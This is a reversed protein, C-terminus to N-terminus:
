NLEYLTSVIVSDRRSNEQNIELINKKSIYKLNFPHQDLIIGSDIGLRIKPGSPKDLNPIFSKKLPLQETILLFKYPSKKNIKEVFSKIESNSLHQLVQRVTALDGEPLVDKSLNLHLFNLNDLKFKKKNRELIVKSIDCAVYHDCYAVLKKGINFDGCGLDVVKSIKLKKFLESAANIYPKVIEIEHSGPGSTSEGKDNKGWIGEKYIKEFVDQTNVGKYKHDLGITKYKLQSFFNQIKNLTSKKLLKKMM